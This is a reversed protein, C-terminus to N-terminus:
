IQIEPPIKDVPPESFIVDDTIPLGKKLNELVQRIEQNNPDIQAVKEFAQKAREMQGKKDYVFGLVYYANAYEPNLEIARTLEQEARDLNEKRWHLLGLQFAIGEDLPAIIKTQELKSIAEGLDGKQDYVIAMLYHALAYDSKLQISAILNDLALNLNQEKLDFQGKGAAEQAALVYVRGKEGFIFPSAPELEAARKYSQIAVEVAEPIGILNRYFFGKVNWNAVNYPALEIAENIREDGMLIAQSILARKQEMTLNPDEAIMNAKSLYLQSLDRRYIDFSPNLQIAEEFFGIAQEFNMVQAAQVGRLYKVEAFYKQGQLFFISFSGIVLLILVLNAVIIASHSSIDIEKKKSDSSLFLIFGALLFFFTFYIVFNFNYYFGAIILGLAGAFFGVKVEYFNKVESKILDKIGFYVISFYLFTLAIIGLVGKTLLWDLFSTSGESFRTGWFLTQNLIPSRHKSYNFIFTGPGTGVIMNKIGENFSGRLIHAESNFGLSIETPLVPFGFIQSPFFYFFISAILGLMLLSAWLPKIKNKQDKLCFVFLILFGITLVALSVRFNILVINIFFILSILALVTKLYGKSNFTLVLSLPLLVAAFLALSNTTGITNFSIVKTFEFPLIFAGYVQFINIIGAIAGASLFFFLFPFFEEKKEFSNIILFALTIFLLFSIFSDAVVMPSGFFSINSSISFLSSTLLSFLILILALYFARNERLFFKGKFIGKGVWGILSLFILILALFQKPFDLFNQTFPLFFIPILFLVLYLSFKNLKDFFEVLNM